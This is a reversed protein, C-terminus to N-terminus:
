HDNLTYEGSRHNFSFIWRPGTKNLISDLPTDKNFLAWYLYIASYNVEEKIIQYEPNLIIQQGIIVENYWLTDTVANTGELWDSSEFRLYLWKLTDGLFDIPYTSDQGIITITFAVESPQLYNPLEQYSVHVDLYREPSPENNLM